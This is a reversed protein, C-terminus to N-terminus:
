KPLPIQKLLNEICDDASLGEIQAEPTLLVRHRLTPCTVAQVEDPRVYASGRLLALAKAAHLMMVAARPSAGLSLSPFSRSAQVIDIIYGFINQDAEIEHVARRLAQVQGASVEKQILRHPDGARAGISNMRELMRKEEEAKPYHILIKMIFRDLQAEPLPYTGEYEIPNQTAAVMFLSSLPHNKGDVTVQREQMAELLASQTKAPARNIEDGLVIDAFIPGRRFIFEMKANDFVNVGTVDVPMLDPTFQIRSYSLDLSAALCRVLLTKALGPVGELLVHGGAIFATLLEEVVPEQGIVIRGLEGRIATSVALAEQLTKDEV